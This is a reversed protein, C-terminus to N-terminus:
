AFAQQLFGIFNRVAPSTDRRQHTIIGLSITQQEVGLDIVDIAGADLLQEVAHIPLITLFDSEQVVRLLASASGSEFVVDIENVGFSQLINKTINHLGSSHIHSIWKASELHVPTLSPEQTLPHNKRCVLKHNLDSLKSVQLLGDDILEFPAIAIDLRDDLLKSHLEPVYDPSLILRIEPNLKLFDAIIYSLQNDCFFSPSGVRVIGYQGSLLQGGINEAHYTAARIHRGSEALKLALETPSAPKTSRDFLKMGFRKELYSVTRSLAPQSTHLRAAAESFSQAEVIEALQLLHRPDVKM